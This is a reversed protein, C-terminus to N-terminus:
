LDVPVDVKSKAVVLIFVSYDRLFTHTHQPSNETEVVHFGVHETEATGKLRARGVPRIRTPRLFPPTLLLSSTESKAVSPLM